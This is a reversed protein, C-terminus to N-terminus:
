RCKYPRTFGDFIGSIFSIVGTIVAWATASMGGGKISKMESKSLKKM